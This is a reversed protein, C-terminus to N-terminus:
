IVFSFINTSGLVGLVDTLQGGTPVELKQLDQEKVIALETWGVNSMAYAGAPYAQVKSAIIEGIAVGRSKQGIGVPPVYSRVDPTIHYTSQQETELNLIFSPPAGNLWGRMAPDLSLYLARFLVEGDQLDTEKSAPQAQISFTEGPVITSKPRVALVVSHNTTSM